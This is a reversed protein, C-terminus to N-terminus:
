SVFLGVPSLMFIFFIIKSILNKNKKNAKELQKLLYKNEAKIYAVHLFYLNEDQRSSMLSAELQDMTDKINLMNADCRVPILKDLKQGGPHDCAMHENGLLRDELPIDVFDM